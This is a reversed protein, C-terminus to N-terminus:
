IGVMRMQNLWHGVVLCLKPPNQGFSFLMRCMPIDPERTGDFSTFCIVQIWVKVLDVALAMKKVNSDKLCLILLLYKYEFFWRCKQFNLSTNQVCSEHHFVIHFTILQMITFLSYLAFGFLCRKSYFMSQGIHM